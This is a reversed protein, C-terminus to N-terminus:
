PGTSTCKHLALPELDIVQRLWVDINSHQAILTSADMVLLIIPTQMQKPPTIAFNQKKRTFLFSSLPCHLSTQQKKGHIHFNSCIEFHHLLPLV